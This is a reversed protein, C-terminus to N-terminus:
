ESVANNKRQAIILVMCKKFLTQELKRVKKYRQVRSITGAEIKTSLANIYCYFILIFIRM